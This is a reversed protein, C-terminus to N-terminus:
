CHSMSKVDESGYQIAEPLFPIRGSKIKRCKSEAHIMYQKSDKDVGNDKKRIEEMNSGGNREAEILWSNLKHEVM